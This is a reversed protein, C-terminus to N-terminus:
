IVIFYKCRALALEINEPFTTLYVVPVKVSITKGTWDLNRDLSNFKRSQGRAGCQFQSIQDRLDTLTFKPTIAKQQMLATAVDVAIAISTKGSSKGLQLFSRVQSATM